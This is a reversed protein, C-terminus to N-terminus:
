GYVLEGSKFIKLGEIREWREEETLPETAIIVAKEDPDKIENLNVTYREDKLTVEFFPSTRKTYFLSTHGHAFLFEGNSLLFNFAGLKVIRKSEEEIILKLTSIYDVGQLKELLYLFAHESDTDGSPIFRRLEWKKIERVTGNHAFSWRGMVFPHTNKHEQNGCSALRVHGIITKSKFSYTKEYINEKVLSHPKKILSPTSLNEDYFVFGFGHHNKKGRQQFERLSLQIDVPKNSSVGLIQCM